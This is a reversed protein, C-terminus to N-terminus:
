WNTSIYKAEMFELLGHHAGERGLGSQKVGGFPAAPDSVLGRNLAIMGSEVRESVRLGRAFDRTYIYAVLGYETANALKVAEDETDFAVIPAVPGFIEEGLLDANPTVGALVTPLYFYGKRDLVKGGTLVRAGKSRADDVLSAVKEVAARNVLPGCQTGPKLGDDTVLAGIRTALRESFEPLAGRQVYFRNAATCAEGGNRMKAIMAGDVAADMDADDFVIFPANGGLEMSCNIVSDAAKRLLVRGVETSGTFSLKRVRRDDLIVNSIKGATSTTLVNVVGDPVGAEALLRAIAYATLPTETAPKLICTCGAALAPGIKRTAMAAPFNWPTILLAIGVPQYQVITRAAGSPAVSIEGNIRVAEEAFWRFFEAAYAVEGRADALAKGNELSILEALQEADRTILEFCRRLIESRKRPATSAWGPAAKAAADVALIADETTADAVSGLRQETAPDFVDIRKGSRSARWAGGIFLDTPIEDIRLSPTSMTAEYNM